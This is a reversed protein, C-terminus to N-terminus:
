VIWTWLDKANTGRVRDLDKIYSCAQHFQLENFPKALEAKVPEYRVDPKNPHNSVHLFAPDYVFNTNEVLKLGMGTITDVIEDADEVNLISWTVNIELHVNPKSNLLKAAEIVESFKSPYRMWEDKENVHDVSGQIIVRGFKDIYKLFKNELVSAKTLNSNMFLTMDRADGQEVLQDLIKLLGPIMTPEGGSLNINKIHRGYNYVFDQIEDVIFSIPEHRKDKALKEGTTGFHALSEDTLKLAEARRASSLHPPCMYCKLNCHNGFAKPKLYIFRGVGMPFGNMFNRVVEGIENMDKATAHQRYSKGQEEFDFCIGCHEKILPGPETVFETRLEQLWENEFWWEDFSGANNPIPTHSKCCPKWAGRMNTHVYNFPKSCFHKPLEVM